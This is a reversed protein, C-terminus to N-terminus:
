DDSDSERQAAELDSEVKSLATDLARERKEIDADLEEIRARAAKVTKPGLRALRAKAEDFAGEGRAVAAKASDRKERLADIRDALQELSARGM